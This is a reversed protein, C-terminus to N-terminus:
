APLVRLLSISLLREYHIFDKDATFIKWDRRVSAACILFDIPTGAIGEAQCRNSSDAALEYDGTELDTDPYSRLIGRLREYQASERIGTLLEQRVPGIMAVSHSMVLNEFERHWRSELVNLRSVDRRLYLSWISTDVLVV